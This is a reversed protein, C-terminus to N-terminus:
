ENGSTFELRWVSQEPDVMSQEDHLTIEQEDPLGIVETDKLTPAKELLYHTINYAAGILIQPDGVYDSVEFERHGLAHLGTTFLGFVGPRDKEYARFDIWLNLPLNDPATTSALQGFAVPEHVTGSAGWVIGIAPAAKCIAVLLRTLRMAQHLAKGSEDVLTIFLHSTHPKLTAEAEPWYWATACPGELQDWPIPQDVLTVNVTAEDNSLQWALTLSNETQSTVAPPAVGPQQSALSALLTEADALKAEALPVLAIWRNHSPM